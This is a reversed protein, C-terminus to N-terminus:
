ELSTKDTLFLPNIRDIPFGWLSALNNQYIPGEHKEEFALRMLCLYNIPDDVFDPDKMSEQYEEVPRFISIHPRALRSFEPMWKHFDDLSDIGPIYSYELDDIGVQRLENLIVLIRELTSTKKIHLNERKTFTEITYAYKFPTKELGSNLKEILDKEQIQSGIYLVRGTFGQQKALNVVKLINDVVEEGNRYMGTVFSIKDVNVFDVNNNQLIKNGQEPSINRMRIELDRCCWDCGKCIPQFNISLITESDLTPIWEQIGRYYFYAPNRFVRGVFKIRFPLENRNYFLKGDEFVYPSDNSSILPVFSFLKDKGILHFKPRGEYIMEDKIGHGKIGYFHLDIESIESYKIKNVEIEDKM